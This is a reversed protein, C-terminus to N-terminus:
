VPLLETWAQQLQKTERAIIGATVRKPDVRLTGILRARQEPTLIREGARTLDAPAALVLELTADAGAMLAALREVVATLHRRQEERARGHYAHEGRGPADQRDSHFKAGRTAPSRLCALEETGTPRVDFFRARSRSLVVTLVRNM